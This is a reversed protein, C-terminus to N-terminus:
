RPRRRGRADADNDVRAAAEQRIRYEELNRLRTDTTRTYERVNATLDNVSERMASLTVWAGGATFVTALVLAFPIARSWDRGTVDTVREATKEAAREAAKAIKEDSDTAVKGVEMIALSGVSPFRRAAATNGHTWTTM